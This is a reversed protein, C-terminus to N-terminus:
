FVSELMSDVAYYQWQCRRKGNTIVVFDATAVRWPLIDIHLPILRGIVVAGSFTGILLPLLHHEVIPLTGCYQNNLTEADFSTVKYEM